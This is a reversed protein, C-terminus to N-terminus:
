RGAVAAVDGDIGDLLYTSALGAHAMAYDPDLALAQEFLTLAKILPLRMFPKLHARAELQLFYAEAARPRYSHVDPDVTLSSSRPLSTAVRTAIVDQLAAGDAPAQEFQENWETRGSAVEILRASVRLWEASRQVSGELLHEVGLSRAGALDEVAEVPSITVGPVGGLVTTVADAIGVGLYSDAEALDPTAFPRM